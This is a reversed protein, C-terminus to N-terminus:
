GTFTKSQSYTLFSQFTMTLIGNEGFASDTTKDTIFVSYRSSINQVQLRVLCTRYNPLDRSMLDCEHYPLVELLGGEQCVNLFLKKENAEKSLRANEKLRRSDRYHMMWKWKGMRSLEQLIESMKKMNCLDLLELAASDFMVFGGRKFLEQYTLNVVDDPEDIGAFQVAPSTKLRLLHPVKLIHEAIDENRIIILLSSSSDECNFFQSPQVATHGEAELQAKTEQFFAVDSTVLIYFRYKTKCSKKVVSNLNSRFSKDLEKKMQDCFDFHNGPETTPYGRDMRFHMPRSPLKRVACVDNMMAKYLRSCESTVGSIGPHEMLNGAGQSINHVHLTNEEEKSHALHKREPMEVKIKQGVLSTANLPTNPNDMSDGQVDLCHFHVTLPSACTFNRKDHTDRQTVPERKSRKMLQKMTESFILCEQEMSAKTPDNQVCRQSVQELLGYSKNPTTNNVTCILSSQPGLLLNNDAHSTSAASSDRPKIEISNETRQGVDKVSGGDLSSSGKALRSSWVPLSSSVSFNTLWSSKSSHECADPKVDNVGESTNLREASKVLLLTTPVTYPVKPNTNQQDKSFYSVVANEIQRDKSINDGQSEDSKSPKVAMVPRQSCLRPEHSLNTQSTTKHTEQNVISAPLSEPSPVSRYPQCSVQEPTTEHIKESYPHPVSSATKKLQLKVGLLEELKFLPSILVHSTSETNLERSSSASVGAPATNSIKEDKFGYSTNSPAVCTTAHKSRTNAAQHLTHKDAKEPSSTESSKHLLKDISQLVRLTRLELDPHINQHPSALSNVTSKHPMENKTATAGGSLLKSKTESASFATSTNSPGSRTIYEFPKEDMTPTSCPSISGGGLHITNSVDNLSLSLEGVSWQAQRTDKQSTGCVGTEGNFPIEEKAQVVEEVKCQSHPDHFRVSDEGSTDIGIFPIVIKSHIKEPAENTNNIQKLDKEDTLKVKTECLPSHTWNPFQEKEILNDVKGGEISKRDWDDLDHRSWNFNGMNNSHSETKVSDKTQAIPMDTDKNDDSMPLPTKQDDKYSKDFASESSHDIESLTHSCKESIDHEVPLGCGNACLKRLQLDHCADEKNVSQPLIEDMPPKPNSETICDTQLSDPGDCIMPVPQNSFNNDTEVPPVCSDRDDLGDEEGIPDENEMEKSEQVTCCELDENVPKGPSSAKPEETASHKNHLVNGVCVIGFEENTSDGNTSSPEVNGEQYPKEKSEWKEGDKSRTDDHEVTQLVDSSEKNSGVAKDTVTKSSDRGYTQVLTMETTESNEIGDKTDTQKNNCGHLVDSVGLTKQNSAPQVYVKEMEDQVSVITCDGKGSAVSTHEGSTDVGIFPIVIESNIKALAENTNIQKLDKEDTLKVKTECLPSYTQNPFPEKKITNDVEKWGEISKKDWDDLDHRSWNCNGMKNNHSGNEVCDNTQAIPIDTDKNDDSMPLPTKQDDKYSKDFASESSHDIELSTHSCKESIDHEVPLGCGNACLKRLQLDHCADEKNVPQPLTEDMPPKPYSETICDTQLSDPGDCIMPVPQNSFNNDTEVPPVCSDRDDLGDEEGIPDEDEMEKSEQVACCELDENVPKGPSSAKPAETNSHKKNNSVNGVCVIGFETNTSDDNTCIVKPSSEVSGEKSLNDKSEWKEEDKPQTDDHQVTQFVDSLERTSDVKKDAVTQSSDRGHTQILSMKTAESNEIGDKMDTRNNNCGHLVNSVGLAKQNSEPQFYVKEMEEQVSVITCDGKWSVVSTHKGFTDIGIFPIVIESNIKAMAENTNDIQKLDKEDTLKVKTECLPSHTRNPLPEKEINDDLEKGGDISKRDWGDHDHRSWNFSGMKNNHSGTEVGDKTQSIPLDTDKNDESMPLPTKQDDKYSKEFAPESSHDIESLTHSCKESIDHEVPLGCGNACLKRLQLDHCADEKNVPQPLTEDMPPKPYSETICDTQLSDPGDCIMPVPQNSFNNDTEVPPVCSDRDDLGDEEGIPDEDEMEKSEQVACCELDENVPKGPSSAKPEETPSHKKNDLVNGDCVVGFEENTPDENTCIVRSEVNGEQYPNEEWKEGDKSQTDDHEVTQLVDSLEKNSGVAKNNVTKSLDKEHIQVLNMETAESNEIGDKMDTQKNNHGHQVNSFGSAKQNNEPQIYVKEMEERVPVITGDGKWSSVNSHELSLAKQLQTCTRLNEKLSRVDNVENIETSLVMKKSQQIKISEQPEVSSKLTNLMESAEKQDVPVSTEKRYAQPNPGVKEANSNRQSLDLIASGPDLASSDKELATTDVLDPISSFPAFSSASVTERSMELHDREESHQYSDVHFFRETSRSYFLGIWMHVILLVEESTDQLSVDWPGHLARVITRDKSDNTFKSDLNFDYTEEWQKTVQISGDKNEFSRSHRFKRRRVINKKLFDPTRQNEESSREHSVSPHLAKIGKGYMTQHHRLLRSSGSLPSVQFPTCKKKVCETSIGQHRKLTKIRGRRPFIPSPRNLIKPTKESITEKQQTESKQLKDVTWKPTLGLAFAFIPDVSSMRSVENVCLRTDQVCSIAYNRKLIEADLDVKVKKLCPATDATTEESSPPDTKRKRELVSKLKSFLFESNKPLNGQSLTGNYKGKVTGSPSTATVDTKLYFEGSESNLMLSGNADDSQRLIRCEPTIDRVVHQLQNGGDKSTTVESDPSASSEQAMSDPANTSTDVLVNEPCQEDKRSQLKVTLSKIQDAFDVSGHPVLIRGCESIVPKLDSRETKKRLPFDEFDNLITSELSQLRPNKEDPAAIGISAARLRKNKSSLQSSKCKRMQVKRRDIKSSSLTSEKQSKFNDDAAQMQSGPTEFCAKSLKKLSKYHGRHLKRPKTKTLNTVQPCDLVQKPTFSENLSNMGETQLKATSFVSLQFDNHKAASVNSIMTLGEGTVANEASTLSVILEAPLDDSTSPTLLNKIKSDDTKILVSLDAIGTDRTSDGAKVDDLLVKQPLTTSDIKSESSTICSDVPTEVNVPSRPAELQEESEISDPQTQPGEPSSLYIYVDDDLDEMREEQGSMLIETAKSVQLQFSDPKRLYSGFSEWAKNTWEPSSYLHKLAAPVDYQDPFISIEQSPSTALGPNILAAYTQMHQAVVQCLEESPDIPTKEVKGEAYSLVPLVQLIESSTALKREQFNADTHIVRTNPFVFMGQLVDTGSSGIDDYPLFHSSHLLILFGGDNLQIILALDKEKIERLLLSLSNREEVETSVFECQSFYLGDLCVEGSFCTEFVARPLLQRLNFMSIAQDIKVVPSLVAPILAGATSRLGVDYVQTGIELQGRWPFYQYVLQKEECKKLPAELTAKTDTYSFSVIAIPFAASPSRTTVNHSDDILEYVYYQTREFALFSSTESSVSPLQESVHCDFGVTPENFNQTYNELVNKVRGKTLRIIAIYGSKEHYWCNLDLCDSYMSIYVGKSPDGLTTCSSNGTLVGTQVVANAKHIDDFLLFGYSEKLEEESYGAERKKERFANYKLELAPNKVLVASTYRFSQKSEEYLYATKLTTLISSQFIGTRESVPVLVGKSSAGGNGSEM